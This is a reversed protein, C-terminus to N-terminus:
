VVLGFIRVLVNSDAFRKVAEVISLFLEIVKTSSTAKAFFYNYMFQELTLCPFKDSAAQENFSLKAQMIEGVM